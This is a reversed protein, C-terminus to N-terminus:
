KELPKYNVSKVGDKKVAVIVYRFGPMIPATGIIAGKLNGKEDLTVDLFDITSSSGTEVLVLETKFDVEPVKDRLKWAKWLAEFAKADTIYGPSPTAKLLEADPVSGKWMKEIKVAKPPAKVGKDQAITPAALGCLLAALLASHSPRVLSTM